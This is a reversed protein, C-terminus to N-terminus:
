KKLVPNTFLRVLLPIVMLVWVIPEAVIIAWYQYHPVLLIVVLVKGVLEISSSVIPTIRDDFGQMANRIICIAAPVFYFLTDVRLYLSGTELVAATDSGTVLHILWPGATWALLMMGISWVWAMLICQWLGKRIRDYKGAGMNQGCFTAMTMGFVGFTINFFETIKRAASHAVIIDEGFTNIASQLSVTGLSVISNMFGMSFGSALMQGALRSDVRCMSLPFRIAEYRRFGYITCALASIFQALLTAAAAGVVGMGVVGMFFYDGVINLVVALALFVLPTVTDGMSRLISAMTNYWATVLMGGLLVSIYAKAEDFIGDPTNLVRMLPTIGILSAVSLAVSLAVALTIAAAVSRKIGKRDGAGFFRATIVSFGNTLGTMFGIILTNIPTTAGVAALSNEGLFEGVMRVDAFSYTLQLMQMLFIPIAFQLIVKTINGKTLDKM